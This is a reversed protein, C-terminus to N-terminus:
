PETVIVVTGAQVTPVTQVAGSAWRVELPGASKAEGLGFTVWPQSGTSYPDAAGPWAARVRDGVTLRVSSGRGGRPSTTGELRVQVVGRGPPPNTRYVRAPAGAATTVVDEFGDGDLDRTASARWTDLDDIGVDPDHVLQEETAWENRFFWAPGRYPTLDEFGQDFFRSEVYLLDLDGDADPDFFSGGWSATAPTIPNLGAAQGSEVFSGGLNLFLAEFNGTNLVDARGDGNVDGVGLGMGDPTLVFGFAETADVLQLEGDVVGENRWARNSVIHTGKDHTSLIDLDGDGDVDLLAASMGFALASDVPLLDSRDIFSRDGTSLFLQDPHAAPPVDAADVPIRDAFNTVYLDLWGDGDLDGWVAHVSRYAGVLGWASAEDTFGCAGDNILLRNAAFQNLVLLDPDGDNDVDAVSVSAAADGPFTPPAPHPSFDAAGDNLLLAHEGWPDSLFLDLDGDLDCDLIGFGGVFDDLWRDAPDIRPDAVHDVGSDVQRLLTPAGATHAPARLPLVEVGETPTPAPEDKPPDGAPPATPAVCGALLVLWLPSM